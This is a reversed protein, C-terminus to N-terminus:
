LPEDDLDWVMSRRQYDFWEQFVEIGRDPPWPRQGDVL